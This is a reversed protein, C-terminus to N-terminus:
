QRGRKRDERGRGRDERGRGRDERGRGRSKERRESRGEYSDSGFTLHLAFSPSSVHAQKPTDSLLGEVLPVAKDALLSTVLQGVPSALWELM